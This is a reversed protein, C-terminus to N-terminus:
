SQRPYAQCHALIARIADKKSTAVKYESRVLRRLEENTSLSHSCAPRAMEMLRAESQAARAGIILMISGSVVLGVTVFSTTVLWRQSGVLDRQKIRSVFPMIRALRRLLSHAAPTANALAHGGGRTVHLNSGSDLFGSIHRHLARDTPIEGFQALIEASKWEGNVPDGAKSFAVAGVNMAAMQFAASRAHQKSLAKIATEIRLEGEEARSFALVFCHARNAM